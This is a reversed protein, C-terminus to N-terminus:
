DLECVWRGNIRRNIMAHAVDNIEELKFKRTILQDVKLEGKLALDVFKPIDIHTTINGYLGGLISLQHVPLRFLPLNTTDDQPTVGAIVLKGMRGTSWYAQVIAGPDGIAEFVIDAGEGIIDRVGPVPDEKSNDIFHTAGFDRAIKDREGELDVAIVPNAQRLAAARIVNLGIGGVGYVVVSDGPQVNAINTVTGWGTPVSCALLCAQDLPMDKRIPVVGEEPMIGHTSFGSVYLGHWVVNGNKDRLRSTGDLMTGQAFANLYGSCMNGMGKLCEPCKGCSVSFTSVVHDGEKVRRVGPGVAEVVGATEHGVVIPLGVRTEGLMQHLDTHCFGTNIHKILVEKERPPELELEEIHLPENFERLVAAKIKM